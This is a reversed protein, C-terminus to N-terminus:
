CDRYGLCTYCIYYNTYRICTTAGPTIGCKCPKIEEECRKCHVLFGNGPRCYPNPYNYEGCKCGNPFLKRKEELDQEVLVELLDEIQRKIIRLESKVNM